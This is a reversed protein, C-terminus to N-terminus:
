TQYPKSLALVTGQLQNQLQYAFYLVQHYDKTMTVFQEENLFGNFYKHTAM